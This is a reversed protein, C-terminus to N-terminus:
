FVRQKHYTYGQIERYVEGFCQQLSLTKYYRLIIENDVINQGGRRTTDCFVGLFNFVETSFSGKGAIKEGLWRQGRNWFGTKLLNDKRKESM